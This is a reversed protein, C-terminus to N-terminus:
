EAFGMAKLYSKEKEYVTECSYTDAAPIYREESINKLGLSDVVTVLCGEVETSNQISSGKALVEEVTLKVRDFNKVHCGPCNKNESCSVGTDMYNNLTGKAYMNAVYLNPGTMTCSTLCILALYSKKM